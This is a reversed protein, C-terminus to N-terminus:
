ATVTRKNEVFEEIQDPRVRLKRAVKHIMSINPMNDRRRWRYYTDTSIGLIQCFDPITLFRQLRYDELSRVDDKEDTNVTDM